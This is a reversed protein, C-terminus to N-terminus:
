FVGCKMNAPVAEDIKKPYELKLKAMIKIFEDKEKSLRPNNKMQEGMTTKTRGKYDHGPYVTTSEPLTFLRTRVSEYLRESSGQQFDTRGCGDILLTDGTFVARLTKDLFCACGNTHGPTALVHLSHRGYPISDGDEFLWDAKAGSAKSIYSRVDPLRSKLLGSGTVHDAHCHTNVAKKLTLGEEAIAELDRDVQELV